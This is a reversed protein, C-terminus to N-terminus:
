ATLGMPRGRRSGTMCFSARYGLSAAVPLVGEGRRCAQDGEIQFEDSVSPDESKSGCTMRSILRDCFNDHRM